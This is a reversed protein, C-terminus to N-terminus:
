ANRFDFDGERGTVTKATVSLGECCPQKMEAHTFNLPVNESHDGSKKLM